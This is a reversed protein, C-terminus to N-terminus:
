VYYKRLHCTNWSRWVQREELETCLDEIKRATFQTKNEIVLVPTGWVEHLSGRAIPVGAGSGLCRPVEERGPANNDMVEKTRFAEEEVWEVM